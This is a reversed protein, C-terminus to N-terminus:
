LGGIAIAAGVAFVTGGEANHYMVLRSGYWSIFSWAVFTVGNSGIAVGKALGQKLGLKVSGQLADSFRTMTKSEGVFSYVTRISSLAQEAISGAKNYEERMKRALGMLIRGYMLGPIMLIVLFPFAVIALRWMLAFAAAYSGFFMSMNMIFNPLKESLVDQIVLSDNCVSTVVESTSQVQLDFYAIDQRLVAKLYRERMRLAQREGTRAWCYGELFCVVFTGCAMYILYLANQSTNHQFQSPDSSEDDSPGLNNMIRSTIFLMLPSSLGDGVSGLFGLTMLCVDTADAHMFISRISGHKNKMKKKNEGGM